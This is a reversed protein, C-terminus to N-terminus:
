HCTRSPSRVAWSPTWHHSRSRRVAQFHHQQHTDQIPSVPFALPDRLTNCRVKSPLSKSRSPDLWAFSPLPSRWSLKWSCSSQLRTFRGLKLWKHWTDLNPVFYGHYFLQPTKMPSLRCPKCALRAASRRNEPLFWPFPAVIVMSKSWDLMLFQGRELSLGDSHPLTREPAWCGLFLHGFPTLTPAFRSPHQSARFLWIGLPISPLNSTFFVNSNYAM